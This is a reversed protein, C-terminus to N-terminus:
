FGEVVNITLVSTHEIVGSAFVIKVQGQYTAPVNPVGQPWSYLVYGNKANFLPDPTTVGATVIPETPTHIETFIGSMHTSDVKTLSVSEYNTAGPIGVNCLAPGAGLTSSSDVLISQPSANVAVSQAIFAPNTLAICASLSSPIALGTGNVRKVLFQITAGTLDLAKGTDDDVILFRLTPGTDGSFMQIAQPNISYPLTSNADASVVLTIDSSLQRATLDIGVPLNVSRLQTISFDKVGFRDSSTIGITQPFPEPPLPFTDKPGLALKDAIKKTYTRAHTPVCTTTTSLTLAHNTPM